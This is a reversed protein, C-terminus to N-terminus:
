KRRSGARELVYLLLPPGNFLFAGTLIFNKLDLSLVQTVQQKTLM